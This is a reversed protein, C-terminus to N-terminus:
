TYEFRGIRVKTEYDLVVSSCRRGASGVSSSKRAVGSSSTSTQRERERERETELEREEKRNRQIRGEREEEGRVRSCACM